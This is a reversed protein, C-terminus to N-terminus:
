SELSHIQKTGEVTVTYKEVIEFDCPSVRDLYWRCYHDHRKKDLIAIDVYRDNDFESFGQDFHFGGFKSLMLRAHMKESSASDNVLKVTIQSGEKLKGQYKENLMQKYSKKIYAVEHRVWIVNVPM